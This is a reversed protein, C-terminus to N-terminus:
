EYKKFIEKVFYDYIGFEILKQYPIELDRNEHWYGFNSSYKQFMYMEFCRAFVEANSSYYEWLPIGHIKGKIMKKCLDSYEKANFYKPNEKEKFNTFHIVSYDIWHGCEHYIAGYGSFYARKFLSNPTLRKEKPIKLKDPRILNNFQLIIKNTQPSFYARMIPRGAAGFSLYVPIKTNTLAKDILNKFIKNKQLLDYFANVCFLKETESLWKGFVIEFNQRLEFYKNDLFYNENRSKVPVFFDILLRYYDINIESFQLRTFTDTESGRYKQKM